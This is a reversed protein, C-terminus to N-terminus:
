IIKFQYMSGIYLILRNEDIFYYSVLGHFLYCNKCVM